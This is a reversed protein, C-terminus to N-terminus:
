GREGSPATRQDRDSYARANDVYGRNTQYGDDKTFGGAPDAEPSDTMVFDRGWGM